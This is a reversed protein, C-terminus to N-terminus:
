ADTAGEEACGSIERILSVPGDQTQRSSLLTIGGVDDSDLEADPPLELM